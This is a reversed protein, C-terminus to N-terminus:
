INKDQQPRGKSMPGFYENLNDGSDQLFIEMNNKTSKNNTGKRKFPGEGLNRGGM